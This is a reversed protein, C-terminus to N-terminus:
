NNKRLQALARTLDMSCRKLAGGEITPTSCAYSDDELKLEMKRVCDLFRKAEKKAEKLTENNM